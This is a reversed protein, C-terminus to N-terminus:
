KKSGAAGDLGLLRAANEYLILRKEECTLGLTDFAELETDHYAIPYDTGFLVRNAGHKRILRVANEPGIFSIASSTDIYIDRGILYKEAEAWRKHGGFHAAIVKLEPFKAIVRAIRAPSAYDLNEDGVHFLVPARSGIARYIGDMGPDDAYFGQFDPHLKIGKLGASLFRDIEQVSESYDPHVTGFGILRGGANEIIWDNVSRVQTPKTATSHFVVYDVNSREASETLDRLTGKGNMILSYHNGIFAVAKEALNDPFAHAHIDIIGTTSICRGNVDNYVHRCNGTFSVKGWYCSIVKEESFCSAAPFVRVTCLTLM